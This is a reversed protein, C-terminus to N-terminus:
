LGLHEVLYQSLRRLLRGHREMTVARITGAVKGRPLLTLFGLRILSATALGSLAFESDSALIIEDFGTVQPSLQTSFGCVLLDRFGPMVRLVLAPRNKIQGDAQALPAVIIDGEKM